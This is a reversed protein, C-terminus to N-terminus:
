CSYDGAECESSDRNYDQPESSYEQDSEDEFPQTEEKCATQSENVGNPCTEVLEQYLCTGIFIGQDILAPVVAISVKLERGQDCITVKESAASTVQMSMLIFSLAIILKM